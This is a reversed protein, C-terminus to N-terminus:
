GNVIACIGGSDESLFYYKNDDVTIIDVAWSKFFITDGTKLKAKVDPGISKVIAIEQVSTGDRLSLGGVKSTPIELLIYKGFPKIKNTKM